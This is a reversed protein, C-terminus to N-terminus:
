MKRKLLPFKLGYLKFHRMLHESMGVGGSALPTSVHEFNYGPITPYCDVSNSNNIKTETVGIINFRFNLEDLIHTQLNELNRNISLINNHFISFSCDIEDRTLKNKLEQFNHPSYYRSQIRYNLLNNNFNLDEDQIQISCILIM